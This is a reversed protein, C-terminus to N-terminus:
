VVSKRDALTRLQRLFGYIVGTEDRETNLEPMVFVTAAVLNMCDIVLVHVDRDRNGKKKQSEEAPKQEEKRRSSRNM